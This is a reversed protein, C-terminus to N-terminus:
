EFCFFYKIAIGQLCAYAFDNKISILSKKVIAPIYFYFPKNADHHLPKLCQQGSAPTSIVISFASFNPNYHWEYKWLECSSAWYSRQSSIPNNTM